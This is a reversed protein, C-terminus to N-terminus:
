MRYGLNTMFATALRELGFGFSAEWVYPRRLHLEDLLGIFFPRGSM